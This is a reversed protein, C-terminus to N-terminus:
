NVNNPETSKKEKLRSPKLDWHMVIKDGAKFDIPVAIQGERQLYGTSGYKELIKNVVKTSFAKKRCRKFPEKIKSLKKGDQQHETSENNSTLNPENREIVEAELDSELITEPIIRTLSNVKIEAKMEQRASEVGSARITSEISPDTSDALINGRLRNKLGVGFKSSSSSVIQQDFDIQSNKEKVISSVKQPDATPNFSSLVDTSAEQSFTNRKLSSKKEKENYNKALINFHEKFSDKIAQDKESELFNQYATVEEAALSQQASSQNGISPIYNAQFEVTIRGEVLLCNQKISKLEFDKWEEEYIEKSVTKVQITDSGCAHRSALEKPLHLAPLPFGFKKGDLDLTDTQLKSCSDKEDKAKSIKRALSWYVPYYNKGKYETVRFILYAPWYLLNGSIIHRKNPNNGRLNIFRLCWCGACLMLESYYGAATQLENCVIRSLWQLAEDLKGEKRLRSYVTAVKTANMLAQERLNVKILRNAEVVAMRSTVAEAKKISSELNEWLKDYVSMMGSRAITYQNRLRQYIQRSEQYLSEVTQCKRKATKMQLELLDLTEEANLLFEEISDLDKKKASMTLTNKKTEVLKKVTEISSQYVENM